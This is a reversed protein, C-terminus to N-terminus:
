IKFGRKPKNQKIKNQNEAPAKLTDQQKSQEQKIRKMEEFKEVSIDELKGDTLRLFGKYNQYDDGMLGDVCIIKNNKLDALMKNSIYVGKYIRTYDFVDECVDSNGFIMVDGHVKANGYVKTTGFVQADEYVQAEGFVKANREVRANGFVQAENYINAKDCVSANDFIKANEYIKINWGVVKANGYIKANGFIKIVSNENSRAVDILANGFVQADGYIKAKGEWGYIRVDETVKANGFVKTDGYIRANGSVKAEGYVKANGYVQANDYVRANGYVKAIDDNDYTYFNSPAFIWCDGQHSLNKESEVFGGKEGAKVNVIDRLAEIRHLTRGDFEITEDTLKYKPTTNM